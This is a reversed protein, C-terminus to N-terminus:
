RRPWTREEHMGLQWQFGGSSVLKPVVETLRLSYSVTFM